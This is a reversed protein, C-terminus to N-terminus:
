RSSHEGPALWSRGTSGRRRLWGAAPNGLTGKASRAMNAIKLNEFVLLDYSNVLARSLQHLVERRRNAIRRHQAAVRRVAQKRRTSGRQKRALAQQAAALAEAGRALHRPNEFFEGDSSV